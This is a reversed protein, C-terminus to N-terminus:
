RRALLAQNSMLAQVRKVGGDKDYAVVVAVDGLEWRQAGLVATSEPEGARAVIEAGTEGFSLGMPLVPHEPREPEARRYMIQYLLWSGDDVQMFTLKVARAPATLTAVGGGEGSSDPEDQEQEILSVLDGPLGLTEAARALRPDAADLGVMDALSEDTV